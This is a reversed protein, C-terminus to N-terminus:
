RRAEQDALGFENLCRAAAAALMPGLTIGNSPHPISDTSVVRSAGAALIDDYASGAFVAHIVMCVPPRSGLKDLEEIARVM